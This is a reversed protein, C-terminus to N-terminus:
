VSHLFIIRKWGWSLVNNLRHKATLPFWEKVGNFHSEVDAYTYGIFLKFDAYTFKINTELGKTDIHGNANQFALNPSTSTLVLPKNLKTYFFLQNISFGVEGLNTRYNVDLNGGVSRESKTNNIDIPRVNRFQLRESEENFITPTKYGLGGGLRATIKNNFHYMASIRPLLESGYEDVVDGRLGTELTFKEVPQWTNQVFLGITNYHYDRRPNGIAVNNEQFDDSLYNLGVIWQSKVRQHSYSLETFISRQSGEFLYGSTQLSRHFSSFSNKLNLNSRESL